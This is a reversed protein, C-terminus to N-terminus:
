GPHDRRSQGVPTLQMGKPPRPKHQGFYFKPNADSPLESDAVHCWIKHIIFTQEAAKNAIETIKEPYLPKTPKKAYMCAPRAKKPSKGPLHWGWIGHMIHNRADILSGMDECFQKALDRIEKSSIRHRTKRLMGVLQGTTMEGMVTIGAALDLAILESVTNLLTHDIQGWIASMRGLELAQHQTLSIQFQPRVMIIKDNM